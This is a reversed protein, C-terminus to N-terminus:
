QKSGKLLQKIKKKLYKVQFRGIHGQLEMLAASNFEQGM